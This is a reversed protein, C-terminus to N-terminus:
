WLSGEVDHLDRKVNFDLV